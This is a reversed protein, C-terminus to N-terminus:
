SVKHKSNLFVEILWDCATGPTIKGAMVEKEAEDIARSM